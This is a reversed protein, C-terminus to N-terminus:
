RGTLNNVDHQLSDLEQTLLSSASTSGGPDRSGYLSAAQVAIAAAALVLM